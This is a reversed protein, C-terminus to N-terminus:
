RLAADRLTAAALSPRNRGRLFVRHRQAAARQLHALTPWISEDMDLVSHDVALFRYGLAHKMAVGVFMGQVEVTESKRMSSAGAIDGRRTQQPAAISVAEQGQLSSGGPRSTVPRTLHFGRM